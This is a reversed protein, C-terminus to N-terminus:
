RQRPSRQRLPSPTTQDSDRLRVRLRFCDRRPRVRPRPRLRLRSALRLAFALASWPDGALFRRTTAVAARGPRGARPRSDRSQAFAFSVARAKRFSLSRSPPRLRTTTPIFIAFRVCAVVAAVVLFARGLCVSLRDSAAYRAPEQSASDRRGRARLADFSRVVSRGASVGRRMPWRAIKMFDKKSWAAGVERKREKERERQRGVVAAKELGIIDSWISGPYATDAVPDYKEWIKPFGRQKAARYESVFRRALREGERRGRSARGGGKRRRKEETTRDDSFRADIPQGLTSTEDRKGAAIKWPRDFVRAPADHGRFIRSRTDSLPFRRLVRRNQAM